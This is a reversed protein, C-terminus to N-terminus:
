MEQSLGWYSETGLAWSYNLELILGKSDKQGQIVLSSEEAHTGSNDRFLSGM